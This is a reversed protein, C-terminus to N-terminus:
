SSLKPVSTVCEFVVLVGYQGPFDPVPARPVSTITIYIYLTIILQQVNILGPFRFGTVLVPPLCAYRRPCRSEDVKVYHSDYDLFVCEDQWRHMLISVKRLGKQDSIRTTNVLTSPKAVWATTHVHM